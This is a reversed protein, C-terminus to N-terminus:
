CLLTTYELPYSHAVAGLECRGVTMDVFWQLRSPQLLIIQKRHVLQLATVQLQIHGGDRHGPSQPPLGLLARVTPASLTRHSSRWEKVGLYVGLGLMAMGMTTGAAIVGAWASGGLFLILGRRVARHNTATFGASQPKARRLNARSRPNGDV